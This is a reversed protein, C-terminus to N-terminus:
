QRDSISASQFGHLKDLHVSKLQKGDESLTMTTVGIVINNRLDTEEIENDSLKTMRVSTVGPDGAYAAEEGSLRAAFSQGSPRSMLFINGNTKFTFTKDADAESLSKIQWAGSLSASGSPGDAVRSATLYGTVVEPSNGGGHSFDDRLSHGDLSIRLVGRSIVKQSKIHDVQFTNADFVTMTAADFYPNGVVAHPVGDAKISFPPVCSNCTYIGGRLLFQEPKDPLKANESEVKWTGNFLSLPALDSAMLLVSFILTLIPRM